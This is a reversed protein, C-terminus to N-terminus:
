PPSPPGRGPPRARPAMPYPGRRVCSSRTWGRCRAASRASRGSPASALGLVRKGPGACVFAWHEPDLVLARAADVVALQPADLQAVDGLADGLELQRVADLREV